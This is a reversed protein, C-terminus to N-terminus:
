YGDQNSLKSISDQNTHENILDKLEPCKSLLKSRLDDALVINMKTALKLVQHASYIRPGGPYIREVDNLWGKVSAYELPAKKFGMQLLKQRTYM